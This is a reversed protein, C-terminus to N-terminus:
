LTRLPVVSGGGVAERGGVGSAVELAETDEQKLAISVWFGLVGAGIALVGTIWGLAWFHPRQATAPPKSAM